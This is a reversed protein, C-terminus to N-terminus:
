FAFDSEEGGAPSSGKVETWAVLTRPTGNFVVDFRFLGKNSVLVSYFNREDQYRFLFGCASYPASKPIVFDGELVFDAQRYLPAETWAFLDTKQLELELRGEADKGKIYRASYGEERFELFRGEKPGSFVATWLEEVVSGPEPAEPAKQFLRKIGEFM